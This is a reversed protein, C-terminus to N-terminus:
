FILLGPTSPIRLRQRSLMRKQELPHRVLTGSTPPSTSLCTMLRVRLRIYMRAIDLITLESYGEVLEGGLSLFM